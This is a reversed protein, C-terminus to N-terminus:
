SARVCRRILEVTTGTRRAGLGELLARSATNTEDIETSVECIGREHLRAFVEGLLARAIGRRRYPRRVGVFGLRPTPQKMWVRVIGVWQDTEGDHAVLYTTPDFDAAEYTEERFDAEDWQWGDTGPVDQRLENDLLRLTTEDVEDAHVFVVGQPADVRESRIPVGYTGERRHVEFGLALYADIESADVTCYVDTTAEILFEPDPDVVFHRGDPRVHANM